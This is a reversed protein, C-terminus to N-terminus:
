VTVFILKVSAVMLVLALVYRLVPQTMRFAGAQAGLLGGALVVLPVPLFAVSVVSFPQELASLVTVSNLVIFLSSVAAAEKVTAWGTLLLLPSLLIGGGIGILGSLLGICGGFFLALPVHLTRPKEQQQFLGTLQLVPIILVLGLLRHFLATDLTIGGGVYALPLSTVLFPLLLRWKFFGAQYYRQFALGAVLTNLLLAVPRIVESPIACLSMVAIYGSAGGHGVSAYLAAVVLLLLCLAIDFEMSDM